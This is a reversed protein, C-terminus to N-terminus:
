SAMYSFIVKIDQDEAELEQSSLYLGANRKRLAPLRYTNFKWNREISGYRSAEYKKKFFFFFFLDSSLLRIGACM